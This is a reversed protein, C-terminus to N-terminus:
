PSGGSQWPRELMRDITENLLDVYGNVDLADADPEGKVSYLWGGAFPERCVLAPDEVALPNPGLFEGGAVCFLDSTAKFGEIWGVADGPNVKSSAPVEFDFEVIEGLMRTAFTTLGIRWIGPEAEALWFHSATYRCGRPLRTSFHNRKFRIRDDAGKPSSDDGSSEALPGGDPDCAPPPDGTM